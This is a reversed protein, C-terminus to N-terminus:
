FQSEKDGKNARERLVQTDRESQASQPRADVNMSLSVLFILAAVLRRIIM